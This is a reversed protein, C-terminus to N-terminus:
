RVGSVDFLQMSTGGRSAILQKGGDIFIVATTAKGSDPPFTGIEEGKELGWAKLSGGEDGTVTWKGKPHVAIRLPALESVKWRAKPKGASLNWVRMEGDKSGSVLPGAKGVFALATIATTHERLVKKEDVEASSANVFRIAGDECGLAVSMDGDGAIATLLAGEVARANYAASSGPTYRVVRGERLALWCWRDKADLTLGIPTAVKDDAMIGLLMHSTTITGDRLDLTKPAPISETWLAFKQGVALGRTGIPVGGLEKRSLTWVFEGKALDWARVEGKATAVVLLDGAADVAAHTIASECLAIARPVPVFVFPKKDELPSSLAVGLIALLISHM